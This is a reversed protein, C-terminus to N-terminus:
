NNIASFEYELLNHRYDKRDLNTVDALNQDMSINLSIIAHISLFYVRKIRTSKVQEKENM